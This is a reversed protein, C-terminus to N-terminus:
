GADITLQPPATRLSFLFNTRNIIQNGGTTALFDRPPAEAENLRVFQEVQMSFRLVIWPGDKGASESCVM